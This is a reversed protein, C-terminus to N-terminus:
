EAESWLLRLRQSFGGREIRRTEQEKIVDSREIQHAVMLADIVEYLDALERILEDAPATGASNREVSLAAEQAEEVLKERLAQQYEEVTMQAIACQRGAAQIIDPIRDRVLKNHHKVM